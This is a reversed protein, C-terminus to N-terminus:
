QDHNGGTEPTQLFQRATTNADVFVQQGQVFCGWILTLISIKILVLKSLNRWLAREQM